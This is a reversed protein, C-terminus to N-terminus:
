KQLAERFMQGRVNVEDNELCSTKIRIQVKDEVM